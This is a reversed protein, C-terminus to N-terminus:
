RRMRLLEAHEGCLMGSAVHERIMEPRHVEFFWGHMCFPQCHVTAKLAAIRLLPNCMM